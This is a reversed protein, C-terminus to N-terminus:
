SRNDVLRIRRYRMHLDVCASYQLPLLWARAPVLKQVICELVLDHWACTFWAGGAFLSVRIPETIDVIQDCGCKPCALKGDPWKAALMAKFTVAPDSFYTVAEILTKPTDDIM